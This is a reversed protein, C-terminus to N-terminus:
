PLLGSVLYPVLPNCKKQVVFVKGCFDPVRLEVYVILTEVVWQTKLVCSLMLYKWCVWLNYAM